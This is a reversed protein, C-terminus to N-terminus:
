IRNSTFVNGSTGQSKYIKFEKGDYRNLGNWTGIWLFGKTDCYISFVTNQALGNKSDFHEFRYINQGNVVAFVFVLIYLLRLRMELAQQFTFNAKKVPFLKCNNLFKFMMFQTGVFLIPKDYM